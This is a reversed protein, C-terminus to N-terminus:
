LWAFFRAGPLGLRRRAPHEQRRFSRAAKFAAVGAPRSEDVIVLEASALRRLGDM